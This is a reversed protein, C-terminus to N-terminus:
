KKTSKTSRMPPTRPKPPQLGVADLVKNMTTTNSPGPGAAAANKAAKLEAMAKTTAQGAEELEAEKKSQEIQAKMMVSRANQLVEDAKQAEIFLADQKSKANNAALQAEEVSMTSQFGETSVRLLRVVIVFLLAHMAAIVLKGGMKKGLSPMTFLVGPSLVVFLILLSLWM